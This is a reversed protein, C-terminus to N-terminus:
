AGTLSVPVPAQATAAGDIKEAMSVALREAEDTRDARLLACVVQYAAMGRAGLSDAEVAITAARDAAVVALDTVGLKTLLKAAGVYAGVYTCLGERREEDAAIGRYGMSSRSSIRFSVSLPRMALLRTIRMSRPSRPVCTPCRRSRRFTWASCITM